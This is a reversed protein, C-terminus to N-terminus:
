LCELFLQEGFGLTQLQQCATKGSKAQSPGAIFILVFEMHLWAMKM